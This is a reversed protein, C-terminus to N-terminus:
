SKVDNRRKFDLWFAQAIEIDKSQTSKDGGCLLVVIETDHQAFYVRYGSGFDLRLESVGSGVPKADGFNGLAVRRLRTRIRVTIMADLGNLWVQLPVNGNRDTYDVLTKPKVEVNVMKDM